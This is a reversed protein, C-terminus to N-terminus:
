VLSGKLLITLDALTTDEPDPAVLELRDGEALALPSALIFSAVSSGGAFRVTCVSSGNHRLDLDAQATATTGALRL